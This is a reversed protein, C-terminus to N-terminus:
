THRHEGLVQAGILATLEATARGEPSKHPLELITTRERTVPNEGVEGIQIPTRDPPGNADPYSM